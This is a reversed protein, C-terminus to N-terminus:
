DILIKRYRGRGRRSDEEGSNKINDLVKLLYYYLSENSYEKKEIGLKNVLYSVIIEKEIPDKNQLCIMGFSIDWAESLNCSLLERGFQRLINPHLTNKKYSSYPSNIYNITDYETSYDKFDVYDLRLKAGNRLHFRCFELEDDKLNINDDLFVETNGIEFDKNIESKLFKIKIISLKNNSEYKISIDEKLIYFLNKYMLIGKQIKIINDEISLDCGSIIGNSYNKYKSSLFEWPFDRLEKLMDVKLLRGSNFLPYIYKFLIKM